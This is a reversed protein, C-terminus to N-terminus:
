RFRSRRATVWVAAAAALATVSLKAVSIAPRVRVGRAGATIVAVKRGRTAIRDGLRGHVSATMVVGEGEARPETYVGDDRVAAADNM